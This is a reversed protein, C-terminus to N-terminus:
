QSKGDHSLAHDIESETSIILHIFFCNCLFETNIFVLGLHMAVALAIKAFLEFFCFFVFFTLVARQSFIVFHDRKKILM